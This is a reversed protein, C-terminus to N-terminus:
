KWPQDPVQGGMVGKLGNEGWGLGGSPEARPAPAGPGASAPGGRLFGAWLASVM